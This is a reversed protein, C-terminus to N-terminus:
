HLALSHDLPGALSAVRLVLLRRALLVGGHATAQVSRHQSSRQSHSIVTKIETTSHDPLASKIRKLWWNQNESIDCVPLTLVSTLSSHVGVNVGYGPLGSCTWRGVAMAIYYMRLRM